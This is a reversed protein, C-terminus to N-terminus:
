KVCQIWLMGDAISEHLGIRSLGCAVEGAVEVDQHSEDISGFFPPSLNLDEAPKYARWLTICQTYIKAGLMMYWSSM